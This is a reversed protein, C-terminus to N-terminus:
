SIGEKTPDTVDIDLYENVRLWEPQERFNSFNGDPPPLYEYAEPADFLKKQM